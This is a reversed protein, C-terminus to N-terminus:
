GLLNDNLLKEVSERLKEASERAGAEEMLRAIEYCKLVAKSVRAQMKAKQELLRIEERKTTFMNDIKLKKTQERYYDDRENSVPSELQDPRYRWRGSRSACWSARGGRLRRAGYLIM